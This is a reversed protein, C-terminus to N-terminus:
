PKKLCGASHTPHAALYVKKAAECAASNPHESVTDCGAATYAPDTCRELRWVAPVPPPPPTPTACGALASAGVLALFIRPSKM